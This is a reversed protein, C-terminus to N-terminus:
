VVGEKDPNRGIIPYQELEVVSGSVPRSRDSLWFAVHHAIEGPQTMRGSPAYSTGAIDEPWDPGLGEKQKIAFETETLVWGLNLHNFRVNEAAYADALNRSLTAHAAKSMSYALLNSEGTYANISGIGVVSGKSQKLYTYAAQVMMLPGRANVGMVRDFLDRDTTELNSRTIAAANNVLGDIRGFAKVAVDVIKKPTLDDLLDAIVYTSVVGLEEVIAEAKDEELGHIVVKAGEAVCQRAVAEGIGTTSGTVIIVKDELIM